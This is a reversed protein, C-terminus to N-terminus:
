LLRLTLIDQFNPFGAIITFTLVPHGFSLSLALDFVTQDIMLLSKFLLKQQFM